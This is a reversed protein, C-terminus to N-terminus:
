RRKKRRKEAARKGRKDAKLRRDVVKVAGSKVKTTKLAGGKKRSVLYVKEKKDGRRAKSILSRISKAKTFESHEASEAISFFAFLNNCM